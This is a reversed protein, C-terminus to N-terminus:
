RPTLGLHRCDCNASPEAPSTNICVLFIDLANVRGDRNLDLGAIADGNQVAFAGFAIHTRDLVNAIRDGNIDVIEKDDDCGDNDSDKLAPSTGWGRVETGDNIGDGDSDKASDSSGFLAEVDAALCDRDNDVIGVCSPKSGPDLPDSGAIVEAGDLVRDGDTDAVVPNTGATAEDVDTLWDNDDDDDCADGLADGNPVTVDDAPVLPGNPIPAADTNLQDANHVAPCNDVLDFVGDGDGDAPGIVHAFLFDAMWTIIEEKHEWVGHGVGELSHLEVTVGAEQCRSAIEEACSFPIDDETGHIALVPPEGAEILSIDVWGSIDVCASVDSPYGPNGSDGPDSANYCTQLAVVAGASFGGIAIRNPDINYAAANARLWRVAAQADHQADFITQSINELDVHDRLRYNISAAVWGRKAFRTAIEADGPSAKDGGIFGGGHVWIFAPRLPESDSTPEYLDLYLAKPEGYEDVAEGYAIDSAVSVLSFVEDRYRTSGSATAGQSLLVAALILSLIAVICPVHSRM